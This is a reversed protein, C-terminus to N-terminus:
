RMIWSYISSIRTVSEGKLSPEKETGQEYVVERYCQHSQDQLYDDEGRVLIGEVKFTKTNFVPSGSNGGFSDLTAKFFYPHHNRNVFAHSTVVLPLGMPHGIMFVKDETSIKGNTRIKLVSRGVVKKKLQILSYDLARLPDVIQAIVKKCEYINKNSVIVGGAVENKSLVDFVILQESCDTEMKFCHGASALLDEGVLFGTCGEVSQHKAFKEDPCVNSGNPDSLNETYIKSKLIKHKVSSKPVILAISKSLEKVKPSSKSTVFRRDDVGYVSDTVGQTVDGNAQLPFIVIQCLFFTFFHIQKV